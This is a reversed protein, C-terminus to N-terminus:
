TAPKPADAASRATVEVFAMRLQHLLHDMLQTEDATANGRTKERLMEITDILYKAQHPHVTAEGTLPHPLQGLSIMAETVLTSLLMELSAPPMPIDGTGAAREAAKPKFRQEKKQAEKEAQVQSKWDEDVIIRKEDAMIAVV